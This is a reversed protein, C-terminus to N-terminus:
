FFRKILFSLYNHQACPDFPLRQGNTDEGTIGYIEFEKIFSAHYMALIRTYLRTREATTGSFYIIVQPHLATFHKVIMVVTSLVKKIDGNNSAVTDDISGDPMKDGFGLNVVNKIQLPAFDVIKEIRNRGVSFFRYRTPQVQEFPYAIHSM